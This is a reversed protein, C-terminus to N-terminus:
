ANPRREFQRFLSNVKTRSLYAVPLIKDYDGKPDYMRDIIALGNFWGISTLILIIPFSLRITELPYEYQLCNKDASM